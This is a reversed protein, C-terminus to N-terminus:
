KRNQKFGTANNEHQIRVFPVRTLIVHEIQSRTLIIYRKSESFSDQKTNSTILQVKLERQKLFSTVYLYNYKRKWDRIIRPNQHWLWAMNSHESLWRSRSVFMNVKAVDHVISYSVFCLHDSFRSVSGRHITGKWWVADLVYTIPWRYQENVM